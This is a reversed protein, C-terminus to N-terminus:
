INSLVDKAWRSATYLRAPTWVMLRSDEANEPSILSDGRAHPKAAKLTVPSDLMPANTSSKSSHSEADLQSRHVELSSSVPSNVDFAVRGRLRNRIDLDNIKM